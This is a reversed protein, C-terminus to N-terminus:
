KRLSGWPVFVVGYPTGLWLGSEVRAMAQIELNLLGRIPVNVAAEPDVRWLGQRSSVFLTGLRPDRALGTAEAEIDPTLREFKGEHLVYAGTLFMGVVVGRKDILIRRVWDNGLGHRQDFTTVRGTDRNYVLVGRGQTGFWVERNRTSLATCVLGQLEPIKLFHTWAEGDFESWGGFQGVMLKGDSVELCTAEGRLLWPFVNKTWNKGDYRDVQGTTLRVYLRDRFVVSHRAHNSTIEPTSFQNWVNGEFRAIGDEFTGVILQGQFPALSYVSGQPGPIAKAKHWKGNAQQWIQGDFTALTLTDGWTAMTRVYRFEDRDASALRQWGQGRNEWIGDGYWAATLASSSGVVATVHTGRNGIPPAFSPDDNEPWSPKPPVMFGGPSASVPESKRPGVQSTVSFSAGNWVAVFDASTAFIRGNEVWVDNPPQGNILGGLGFTRPKLDEDFQVIGGRTAALFGDKELPAIATIVKTDGYFSPPSQSGCGIAGTVVGLAVLSRIM